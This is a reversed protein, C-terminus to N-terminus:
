LRPSNSIALYAAYMAPANPRNVTSEISRALRWRLRLYVTVGRRRQFIARLRPTAATIIAQHPTGPKTSITAKQQVLISAGSAM